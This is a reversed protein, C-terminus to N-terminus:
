RTGSIARVRWVASRIPLRKPEAAAVSWEPILGLSRSESHARIRRPSAGITTPGRLATNAGVGFKPSTIM